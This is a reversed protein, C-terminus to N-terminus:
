QKPTKRYTGSGTRKAKRRADLIERIRKEVGAIGPRYLETRPLGEPMYDLSLAGDPDDHAYIYGEGYGIERMLRTPANRLYL